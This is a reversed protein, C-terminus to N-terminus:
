LARTGLAIIARALTGAAEPRGLRAANEGLLRRETGDKLLKQLAPLLEERAASERVLIAAHRDALSRANSTQHDAAASPLPVLVSAKGLLTLEALTTAGARCLVVDSAAYALDMREIYPYARLVGQGQATRVAPDSLIRDADRSGTQWLVQAGTELVAPLVALVASNIAVSGQSGGFVLLTPREAVLDFARAAESRAPTGLSARVPNGSIRVNDQRRLRAATEPFTIHVEDVHSALLRTTVGPESNQEQILTRRRLLMAAWLVPGCVYGGTGVVVNPRMKRLIRLSQLTAVIVKLPMLLASLSLSRRLGSIWITELRYGSAPVVREEIRGKTGVFLLQADPRCRRIEDAIALGPYLHGGTGGGAIVVTLAQGSGPLVDQPTM